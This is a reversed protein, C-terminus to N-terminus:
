FLKKLLFILWFKLFFLFERRLRGESNMSQGTESRKGEEEDNKKGKPKPPQYGGEKNNSM